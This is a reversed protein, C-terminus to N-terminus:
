DFPLQGLRGTAWDRGGMVLSLSAPYIRPSPHSRVDVADGDRANRSKSKKRWGPGAEGQASGFNSVEEYVELLDTLMFSGARLFRRASLVAGTFPWGASPGAADVELATAGGGGAERINAGKRANPYTQLWTGNAMCTWVGLPASAFGVMITTVQTPLLQSIHSAALM